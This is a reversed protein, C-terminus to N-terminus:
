LMPNVTTKNVTTKNLPGGITIPFQENLRQGTPIVPIPKDKSNNNFKQDDVDYMGNDPLVQEGGKIRRSTNKRSSIRRTKQKRSSIRRTKQKRGRLKRSQKRNSM